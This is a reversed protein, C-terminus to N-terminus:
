SLMLKALRTRLKKALVHAGEAQSQLLPVSYHHVDKLITLFIDNFTEEAM